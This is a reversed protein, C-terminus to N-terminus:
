NVYFKSLINSHFNILTLKSNTKTNTLNIKNNNAKYFYKGVMLQKHCLQKMLHMPKVIKIPFNLWYITLRTIKVFCWKLKLIYINNLCYRSFNNALFIAGNLWLTGFMKGVINLLSFGTLLLFSFINLPKM